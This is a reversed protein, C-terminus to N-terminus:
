KGGGGEGGQENGSQSSASRKQNRLTFSNLFIPLPGQKPLLEKSSSSNSMVHPVPDHPQKIGALSFRLLLNNRLQQFSFLYM